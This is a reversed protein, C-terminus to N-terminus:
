KPERRFSYLPAGGPYLPDSGSSGPSPPASFVPLTGAPPKPEFAYPDLERLEAIAAKFDCGPVSLRKSAAELALPSTMGAKKLETEAEETRLRLAEAERLAEVEARAAALSAELEELRGAEFVKAAEVGRGYEAMVADVATKDLGLGELFERKM